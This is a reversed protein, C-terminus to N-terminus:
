IQHMRQAGNVHVAGFVYVESPAGRTLVKAVPRGADLAAIEDSTLGTTAFLPAPPTPDAAQSM